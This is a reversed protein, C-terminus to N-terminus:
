PSRRRRQMEEGMGDCAAADCLARAAPFAVEEEIPLHGAYLAEFERAHEGMAADVPGAAGEGSWEVLVPRLGAWLTSMREHDTRLRQVVAVLAADGSAQLRPFVHREEDEHHQPAALDFYRLVDHAASRSQADHGHQRVHEILRGLLRLTRRVRDHCAELMEFPQEFGVGPAAFLAPLAPDDAPRMSCLM